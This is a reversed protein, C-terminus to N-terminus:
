VDSNVFRIEKLEVIKRVVTSQTQGDRERLFTVRVTSISKNMRTLGTRERVKQYLEDGKWLRNRDWVDGRKGTM